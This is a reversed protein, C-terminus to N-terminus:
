GIEGFAGFRAGIGAVDKAVADSAPGFPELRLRPASADIERKRRHGTVLLALLFHATDEVFFLFIHRRGAFFVAIRGSSRRRFVKADM